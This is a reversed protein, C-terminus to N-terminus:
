ESLVLVIKGGIQTGVEAAVVPSLYLINRGPTRVPHFPLCGDPPVLGQELLLLIFILFCLVLILM